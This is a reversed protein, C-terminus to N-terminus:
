ATAAVHDPDDYVYVTYEFLGYDHRVCFRRSIQANLFDTLTAIPVHFLSAKEWDV